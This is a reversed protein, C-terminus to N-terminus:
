RERERERKRERDTQSTIEEHILQTESGHPKNHSDTELVTFAVSKYMAGVKAL